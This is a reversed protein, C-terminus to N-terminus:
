LSDITNLKRLVKIIIITEKIDHMFNNVALGGGIFIKKFM